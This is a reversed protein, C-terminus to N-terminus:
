ANTGEDKLVANPLGLKPAIRPVPILPTDGEGLTVPTEGEQLPLFSRFRWMGRDSTAGSRGPAGHSRKPYRVLWPQGCQCVTALGTPESKAGCSICELFWDM